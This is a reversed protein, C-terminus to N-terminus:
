FDTTRRQKPLQTERCFSFRSFSFRLQRIFGHCIFKLVTNTFFMPFSFSFLKEWINERAALFVPMINPMSNSKSESFLSSSTRFILNETKVEQNREWMFWHIMNSCFYNISVTFWKRRHALLRHCDNLHFRWFECVIKVIKRRVNRLFNIDALSSSVFKCGKRFCIKPSPSINNVDNLFMTKSLTQKFSGAWSYLTKALYVRFCSRSREAAEVKEWAAIKLKETERWRSFSHLNKRSKERM